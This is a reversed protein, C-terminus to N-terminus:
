SLLHLRIYTEKDYHSLHSKEKGIRLVNRVQRKWKVDSGKPPNASPLFDEEDLCQQPIFRYIEYVKYPRGKEMKQNLIERIRDVHIMMSKRESISLVEPNPPTVLVTKKDSIALTSVTSLPNHAGVSAPMCSAGSLLLPAQTGLEPNLFDPTISPISVSVRVPEAKVRLFRGPQSDDDDHEFTEEGVESHSVTAPTEYKASDAMWSLICSVGAVVARNCRKM